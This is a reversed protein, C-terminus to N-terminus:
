LAPAPGPKNARSVRRRTSASPTLAATGGTFEATLEDVTAALTAGPLLTAAVGGLGILLTDRRSLMM